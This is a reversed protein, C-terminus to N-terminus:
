SRGLSLLSMAIFEGDWSNGSAGMGGCVGFGSDSWSFRSIPNQDEKEKANAKMDGIM